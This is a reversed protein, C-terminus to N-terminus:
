SEVENEWISEFSRAKPMVAKVRTRAAGATLQAGIAMEQLKL